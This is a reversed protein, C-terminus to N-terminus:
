RGTGAGATDIRKGYTWPLTAAIKFVAQTQVPVPAVKGAAPYGNLVPQILIKLPFVFFIYLPFILDSGFQAFQHAGNVRGHPLTNYELYEVVAIVIKIQVLRKLRLILLIVPM